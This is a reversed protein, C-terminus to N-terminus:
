RFSATISAPVALAPRPRASSSPDVASPSAPGFLKMGRVHTDRGHQHMDIVCVQFVFARLPDARAREQSAVIGSASVHLSVWGVPSELKLSAISRMDRRTNGARLSVSHPTYSEDRDADLLLGIKTM